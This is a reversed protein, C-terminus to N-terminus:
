EIQKGGGTYVEEVNILVVNNIDLGLKEKATKKFQEFVDGSTYIGRLSGTVKWAKLEKCALVAAQKTAELNAKTKGGAMEAYAITEDDIAMMSGKPTLHPKGTAGVTAIVKMSQLDNFLDMAKEPLKAM